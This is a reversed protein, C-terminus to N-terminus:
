QPRWTKTPTTTQKAPKQKKVSDWDIIVNKDRLAKDVTQNVPITITEKEGSKVMKPKLLTGGKIMKDQLVKLKRNGDKDVIARYGTGEVDKGGFNGKIVPSQASIDVGMDGNEDPTFTFTTPLKTVGFAIGSGVKETKEQNQAIIAWKKMGTEVDDDPAAIHLEKLEALRDQKAEKTPYLDDINGLIHEIPHKSYSEGSTGKLIDNTKNRFEKWSADREVRAAKAQKMIDEPKPPKPRIAGSQLFDTYADPVDGGNKSNKIKKTYNDWWEKYAGDDLEGSKKATIADQNVKSLSSTAQTAWKTYNMLDSRRNQFQLEEQPSLRLRGMGKHSKLAEKYDNVYGERQEIFKNQIEPYISSVQIDAISQAIKQNQKHELAATPDAIANLTNVFGADGRGKVETLPVFSNNDLGGTNIM